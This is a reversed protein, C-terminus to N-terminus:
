SVYGQMRARAAGHYIDGILTRSVPSLAGAGLGQIARFAILSPMNWAFGCLISASIFLGIGVLLLPKRGYLDALRGYIPTTVAQTLLYVTFVWSLLAFGGIEGVITPMATAVITSEIQTIFAAALAAIFILVRREPAIVPGANAPAAGIRDRTTEAPMSPMRTWECRCLKDGGRFRPDLAVFGNNGPNGSERSHRFRNVSSVKVRPFCGRM